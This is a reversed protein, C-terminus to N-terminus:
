ATVAEEEEAHVHVHSVNTTVLRIGVLPAQFTVRAGKRLRRAAAECQAHHGAPFPQEVHAQPRSPADIELDFCLVPVMQGEDGLVKVRATARALLTGTFELNTGITM